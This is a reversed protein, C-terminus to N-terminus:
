SYNGTVWGASPVYKKSLLDEVKGKCSVCQYQAYSWAIAEWASADYQLQTLSPPNIGWKSTVKWTCCTNNGGM